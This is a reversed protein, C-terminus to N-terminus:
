KQEDILLEIFSFRHTHDVAQETVTARRIQHTHDDVKNTSGGLFNGSSDFKITYKHTHGDSVLTNGKIVEPIILELIQDPKQKVLAEISFGNIEGSKIAEWVDADAVHVGGVWSSAIFDPDEERAIFSEVLAAQITINNHQVDISTPTGKIMFRYAMKRVEQKSMFEGDADPIDPITIEGFAVQLEEDLKTILM